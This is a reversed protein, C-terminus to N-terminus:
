ARVMIEQLLQTVRPSYLSRAVCQAEDAQQARCEQLVRKVSELDVDAAGAAGVAAVTIVLLLHWLRSRPAPMAPPRAAGAGAQSSMIPNFSSTLPVYGLSAHLASRCLM